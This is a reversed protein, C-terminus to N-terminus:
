MWGHRSGYIALLLAANVTLLILDSVSAHSMIPRGRVKLPNAVFEGLPHRLVWFMTVVLIVIIVFGAFLALTGNRSGIVLAAVLGALLSYVYNVRVISDVAANTIWGQHKKLKERGSQSVYQTVASGIYRAAVRSGIIVAIPFAPPLYSFWDVSSVWSMFQEL